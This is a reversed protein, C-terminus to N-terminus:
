NNKAINEKKLKTAISLQELFFSNWREQQDKLIGNRTEGDYDNQMKNMAANAQNYLKGLVENMNELTIKAARINKIFNQAALYTADFHHQEHELIYNSKSKQRVWSKPKSFYCYVAINIQGVANRSKMDAKYGFGSSTIAAVASPPPPIGKFDSWELKKDLKYYIVEKDNMKTQETWSINTTVQSYGFLVFFLQLFVSITFRM